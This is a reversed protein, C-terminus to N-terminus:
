SFSAIASSHGKVAKRRKADVLAIRSVVDRQNGTVILVRFSIGM